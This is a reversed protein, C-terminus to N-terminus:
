NEDQTTLQLSTQLFWLKWFKGMVYFIHYTQLVHRIQITQWLSIKITLYLIPQAFNQFMTINMWITTLQPLIILFLKTVAWMTCVQAGPVYRLIAPQVLWLASSGLCGILPCFLMINLHIGPACTQVIHATVVCKRKIKGWNVVIHSFIVISWFKARGLTSFSSLFIISIIIFIIFTM